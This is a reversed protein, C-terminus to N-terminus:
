IQPQIVINGTVLCVYVLLLGSVCDSRLLLSSEYFNGCWKCLCYLALENVIGATLWFYGLSFVFTINILKIYFFNNTKTLLQVYVFKPFYISDVLSFM